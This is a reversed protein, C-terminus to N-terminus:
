AGSDGSNLARTHYGQYMSLANNTNLSPCHNKAGVQLRYMVRIHCYVDFQVFCLQNCLLTLFHFFTFCKQHRLTVFCMDIRVVLACLESTCLAISGDFLLVVM